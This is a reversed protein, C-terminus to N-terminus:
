AGLAVKMVLQAIPAAVRITSADWERVEDWLCMAGQHPVLALIAARDLSEAAQM